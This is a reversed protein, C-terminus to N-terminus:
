PYLILVNQYLSKLFQKERLGSPNKDFFFRICLDPVSVIM